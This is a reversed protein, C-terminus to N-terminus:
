TSVYSVQYFIRFAHVRTCKTPVCVLKSCDLPMCVHVSPLHVCMSVQYFYLRFAHVCVCVCVVETQEVRKGGSVVLSGLVTSVMGVIPLWVVGEFSQVKLKLVPARHLSHRPTNVELTVFNRFSGSSVTHGHPLHIAANLYCVIVCVYM